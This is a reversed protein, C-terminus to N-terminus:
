ALAFAVAYKDDADLYRQLTWIGAIQRERGKSNDTAIDLDNRLTDHQKVARELANQSHQTTTSILFAATSVILSLIATLAPGFMRLFRPRPQAQYRLDAIELEIKEAERKIKAIELQSKEIDAPTSPLKEQNDGEPM